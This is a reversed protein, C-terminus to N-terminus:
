MPKLNQELRAIIVAFRRQRAVDTKLTYYSMAYTKQISPSMAVYNAYAKPTQTLRAKFGELDFDEPPLDARDWCGNKKAIKVAEYGPAKMKNERILREITKKNKTSWVSKTRRQAFYKLYYDADLRKNTSDIWGYCLAIEVALDATLKPENKKSIKLWFSPGNVHSNLYDEFDITNEFYLIDM